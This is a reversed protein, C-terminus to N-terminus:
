GVPTVSLNKSSTSKSLSLRKYRVADRIKALFDAVVFPKLIFNEMSASGKPRLSKDKAFYHHATVMLVPVRSYRSHNRVAELVEWGNMGGMMIDLLILDIDSDRNLINLGEKGSTAAVVEYSGERELILKALDIMSPDDDIILIRHM